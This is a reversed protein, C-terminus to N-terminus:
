LDITRVEMLIQAVNTGCSITGTRRIDSPRVGYRRRLTTVFHGLSGFGWPGIRPRRVSINM